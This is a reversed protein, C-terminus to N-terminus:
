SLDTNRTSKPKRKGYRLVLAQEKERSLPPPFSGSPSVKLFMFLFRWLVYGFTELLM